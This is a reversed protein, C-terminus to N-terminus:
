QRDLRSVVAMMPKYEQRLLPNRRLAGENHYNEDISEMSYRCAIHPDIEPNWVNYDIRNLVGGCKMSHVWLTHRLQYSITKKPLM